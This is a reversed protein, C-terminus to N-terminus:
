VCAKASDDWNRGEPCNLKYPTAKDDGVSTFCYIFGTVDDPDARFCCDCDCIEPVKNCSAVTAEHACTRLDEDWATGSPCDRLVPGTLTCQIYQHCNTPHPIFQVSTPDQCRIPHGDVLLCSPLSCEEAGGAIALLLVGVAVRLAM